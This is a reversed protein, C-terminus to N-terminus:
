PFGRWALGDFVFGRLVHSVGVVLLVDIVVVKVLVSVGGFGSLLGDLLWSRILSFVWEWLM